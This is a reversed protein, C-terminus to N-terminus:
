SWSPLQRRKEAIRQPDPQIPTGTDPRGTLHNYDRTNPKGRNTLQLPAIAYAASVFREGRAECEIGSMLNFEEPWLYDSMDLRTDKHVGRDYPRQNRWVANRLKDGRRGGVTGLYGDPYSGEPTQRWNLRAADLADRFSPNPGPGHVGLGLQVEQMSFWNDITQPATHGGPM